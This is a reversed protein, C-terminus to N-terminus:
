ESQKMENLKIQIKDVRARLEDADAHDEKSLVESIHKVEKEAEAVVEADAFETPKGEAVEKRPFLKDELKKIWELIGKKEEGKMEHAEHVNESKKVELEEPVVDVDRAEEPEHQGAEGELKEEGM